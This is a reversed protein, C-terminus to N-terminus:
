RGITISELQERAPTLESQGAPFKNLEFLFALLDAYEQPSLTKPSGVPMTSAMTGYLEWATRGNWKKQFPEGAVAPAEADGERELSEGPIDPVAAHGQGNDLHCLVCRKKYQARGRAAQDTTYVGDMVSRKGPTQARATGAVAAAAVIMLVVLVATWKAPDLWGGSFSRRDAPGTGSLPSALWRQDTPDCLSGAKAFASLVRGVHALRIVSHGDSQRDADDAVAV